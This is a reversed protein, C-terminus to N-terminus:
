RAGQLAQRPAIVHPPLLRDVAFVWAATILWALLVDSVYHYQIYPRTVGVAFAVGLAFVAIPTARPGWARWAAIASPLAISLTAIAHGSPLGFGTSDVFLEPRPREFIPMLVLYATGAGLWSLFVWLGDRTRNAGWFALSAFAALPVTASPKGLDTVILCAEMLGDHNRAHLWRLIDRDVAAIADGAAAIGLWVLALTGALLAGWAVLVRLLTRAWRRWM